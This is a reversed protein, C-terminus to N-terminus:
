DRTQITVSQNIWCDVTVTDGVKKGYTFVEEKSPFQEKMRQMGSSNGAKRYMEYAAIFIARDEVISKGKKCQEYSNLYLNGVLTYAKEAVSPSAQAAKLANERAAAKNGNKQEISAISLYIEGKQEDTESLEAAKTLFKMAEETNGERAMREGITKALGANPEKEFTAMAAQTFYDQDTCQSALSLAIIKKATEVDDPNENMKPVLREAIFDCDVNVTAMFLGDLKEAQEKYKSALKGSSNADIVENLRDYINIVQEEDMKGQEYLTKVVTMYPFINYYAFKDKSVELANSFISDLREYESKEKFLLKIATSAKRNLVDAEDGFYKIRTDYLNLAKETYEEKKAPDTEKAALDEYIESGNIYISPNLDPANDLLWQLPETAAELNGQKQLDTYLVVKTQATKKDEPWNYQAQAKAATFVVFMLLFASWISNLKLHLRM